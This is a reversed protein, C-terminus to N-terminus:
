PKKFGKKGNEVAKSVISDKYKKFSKIFWQSFSEPNTWKTGKQPYNWVYLSYDTIDDGLTYEKNSGQVGYGAIGEELDGSLKPIHKGSYDLTERAINYVTCDIYRNLEKIPLDKLMEVEVKIKSM